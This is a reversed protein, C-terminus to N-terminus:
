LSDSFVIRRFLEALLAISDINLAEDIKAFNLFKLVSVPRSSLPLPCTQQCTLKKFPFPARSFM